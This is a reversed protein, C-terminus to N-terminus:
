PKEERAEQIADRLRDYGAQNAANDIRRCTWLADVDVGPQNDDAAPVDPRRLLGRIIAYLGLAVIAAGAAAIIAASAIAGWLIRDGTQLFDSM